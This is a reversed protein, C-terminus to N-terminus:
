QVVNEFPRYDRNRQFWDWFKSTIAKGSDLTGRLGGFVVEPSYYPVSQPNQAPYEPAPENDMVWQRRTDDYPVQTVSPLAVPQRPQAAPVANGIPLNVPAGQGVVPPNTTPGWQYKSTPPPLVNKDYFTPLGSQVTAQVQPTPVAQPQPASPLAPQQPTEPWYHPISSQVVGGGRKTLKGTEIDYDVYVAPTREYGSKDSRAQVFIGFKGYKSNFNDHLVQLERRLDDAIRRSQSRPAVVGQGAGAGESAALQEAKFWGRQLRNMAIIDADASREASAADLNYKEYTNAESIRQNRLNEKQLGEAKGMEERRLALYDRQQKEQATMQERALGLRQQDQMMQIRARQNALAAQERQFKEARIRDLAGQVDSGIPNNPSGWQLIAM